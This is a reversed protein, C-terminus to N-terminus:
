LELLNALVFKTVHMPREEGLRHIRGMAQLEAASDISPEMLYLRSATTLTM